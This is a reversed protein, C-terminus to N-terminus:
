GWEDTETVGLLVAGWRRKLWMVQKRGRGPWRGLHHATIVDCNDHVVVLVM